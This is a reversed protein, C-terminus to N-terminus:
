KTLGPRLMDWMNESVKELDFRSGPLCWSYVYGRVCYLLTTAIQAATLDSKIEGAQQGERILEELVYYLERKNPILHPAERTNSVRIAYSLGVMKKTFSSEYRMVLRLYMWLKDIGPKMDSVEALLESRYKTDHQAMAELVIQDKSKFHGYFAGKTVGVKQCIEDISVNEFGKKIFLEAASDFLKQRLDSARKRRVAFNKKRM